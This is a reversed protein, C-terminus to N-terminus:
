CHEPDAVRLLPVVYKRLFAPNDPGVHGGLYGTRAMAPTWRIQRLKAYQLQKAEDRPEQMRFGVLGASVSKIRDITGFIRTGFGLVFVDLPSWFVVMERKVARLAPTLDYRPSLAPSLLVAAEM